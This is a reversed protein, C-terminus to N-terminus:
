RPQGGGLAVANIGFAEELPTSQFLQELLAEPHFGNKVEIVLRLGKARDTLDKVDAIGLLKKTQVLQKIKEIVRETGVGYPLETVVIGKRRATVSEIRTTARM